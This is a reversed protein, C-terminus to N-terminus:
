KIDCHRKWDFDNHRPQTPAIDRARVRHCRASEECNQAVKMRMHDYAPVNGQCCEWGKREILNRRRPPNPKKVVPTCSYECCPYPTSYIETSKRSYKPDEMWYDQIGNRKCWPAELTPKVHILKYELGSGSEFMAKNADTTYRIETMGSYTILPKVMREETPYHCNLSVTDATSPASRQKTQGLCPHQPCPNVLPDLPQRCSDRAARQKNYAVCPDQYCAAMRYSQDQPNCIGRNCCNNDEYTMM